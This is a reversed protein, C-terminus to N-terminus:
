LRIQRLLSSSYELVITLLNVEGHAQLATNALCLLHSGGAQGIRVGPFARENVYLHLCSYSSHSQARVMLSSTASPLGQSVPDSHSPSNFAPQEAPNVSEDEVTVDNEYAPDVYCSEISLLFSVCLSWRILHTVSDVDLQSLIRLQVRNEQIVLVCPDDTNDWDDMVLLAHTKREEKGQHSSTTNRTSIVGPPPSSPSTIGIQNV